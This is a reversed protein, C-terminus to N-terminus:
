RGGQGWQEPPQDHILDTEQGHEGNRPKAPQHAGQEQQTEDVLGVWL